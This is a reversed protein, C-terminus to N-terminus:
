KFQKGISRLSGAATRKFKDFMNKAKNLPRNVASKLQATQEAINLVSLDAEGSADKAAEAAAQKQAALKQRNEKTNAILPKEPEKKGSLTGKVKDLLSEDGTDAAEEQIYAHTRDITVSEDGQYSVVKGRQLRRQKKAYVAAIDKEDNAQLWPNSNLQAAAPVINAALYLSTLLVLKRLQM